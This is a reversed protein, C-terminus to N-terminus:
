YKHSNAPKKSCLVQFSKGPHRKWLIAIYLSKTLLHPTEAQFNLGSAGSKQMKRGKEGNDSTYFNGVTEYIQIFEKRQEMVTSETWSM